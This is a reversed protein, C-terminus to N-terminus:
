ISDSCWQNYGQYNSYVTTFSSAHRADYLCHGVFSQNFLYTIREWLLIPGVQQGAQMNLSDLVEALDKQEKTVLLSTIM